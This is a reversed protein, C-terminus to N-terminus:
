PAIILLIQTGKHMLTTFEALTSLMLFFTQKNSFSTLHNRHLLVFM